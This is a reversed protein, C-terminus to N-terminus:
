EADELDSIAARVKSRSEEVNKVRNLSDLADEISRKVKKLKQELNM